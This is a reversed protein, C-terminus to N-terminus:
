YEINPDVYSCRFGGKRHIKGSSALRHIVLDGKGFAKAAAIVSPFLECRGTAPWEALVGMKGPRPSHRYLELQLETYKPWVVHDSAWRFVFGGTPCIASAKMHNTINERKIELANAADSQSNYVSVEGTFVNRAMVFRYGRSDSYQDYEPWPKGDDYKFVLGDSYRKGVKKKALRRRIFNEDQGITTYCKVITDFRTVTDTNMDWM